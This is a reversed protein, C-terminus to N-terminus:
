LPTEIDRKARERNTADLLVAGPHALNTVHHLLSTHRSECSASYLAFSILTQCACAFRTGLDRNMAELGEGACERTARTQHTDDVRRRAM